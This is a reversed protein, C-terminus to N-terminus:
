PAPFLVFAALPADATAAAPAATEPPLTVPGAEVRCNGAPRRAARVRSKSTRVYWRRMNGRFDWLSGVCSWARGTSSMALGRGMCSTHSVDQDCSPFEDALRSCYSRRSGNTIRFAYRHSCPKPSSCKQNSSLSSPCVNSLRAMQRYNRSAPVSLYSNQARVRQNIDSVLFNILYGYSYKSGTM